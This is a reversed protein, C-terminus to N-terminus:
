VFLVSPEMAQRRESRARARPSAPRRPTTRAADRLAGGACLGLPARSQARTRLRARAGQLRREEVACAASSARVRAIRLRTWGPGGSPAHSTSAAHRRHQSHARAEGARARATHEIEQPVGGERRLLLDVRYTGREGGAAGQGSAGGAARTRCCGAGRMHPHPGRGPLVARATRRASADRLRRTGSPNSRLPTWVSHTRTLTSHAGGPRLSPWAACM